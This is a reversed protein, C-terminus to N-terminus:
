DVGGEGVDETDSMFDSSWPGLCCTSENVQLENDTSEPVSNGGSVAIAGAAVATGFEVIGDVGVGDVAVKGVVGVVGVIVVTVFASVSVSVAVAPGGDDDGKGDDDDGVFSVAFVGEFLGASRLDIREDGCPRLRPRM